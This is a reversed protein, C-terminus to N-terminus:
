KFKIFSYDSSLFFEKCCIVSGPAWSELSIMCFWSRMKNSLNCNCIFKSNFRFSFRANQTSFHFHSLVRSANKKTRHSLVWCNWNSKMNACSSRHSCNQITKLTQVQTKALLLLTSLAFNKHTTSFTITIVHTPRCRTCVSLKHIKDDARHVVSLFILHSDIVSFYGCTCIDIFIIQAVKEFDNYM